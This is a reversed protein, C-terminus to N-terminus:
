GLLEAVDPRALFGERLSGSAAVAADQVVAVAEKRHAQAEEPRGLGELARWAVRGARWL